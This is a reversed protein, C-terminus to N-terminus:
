LGVTTGLIEAGQSRPDLLLSKLGNSLYLDVVDNVFQEVLEVCLEKGERARRYAAFVLGRDVRRNSQGLSFYPHHDLHVSGSPNYVSRYFTYIQGYSLNNADAPERRYETYDDQLLTEHLPLKLPSSLRHLGYSALLQGTVPKYRTQFKSLPLPLSSSADRYIHALYALDFGYLQAFRMIQWAAVVSHWTQDPPSLNLSPLPVAEPTTPRPHLPTQVNNWRDKNNRFIPKQEGDADVAAQNPHYFANSDRTPTSTSPRSSVVSETKTGDFTVSSETATWDYDDFIESDKRPIFPRSSAFSGTGTDVITVSAEYDNFYESDRTPTSLRSPVIYEGKADRSSDTSKTGLTDHDGAFEFYSVESAKTGEDRPKMRSKTPSLCSPRPYKHEMPSPMTPTVPSQPRRRFWKGSPM